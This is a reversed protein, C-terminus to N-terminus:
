YGFFWSKASYNEFLSHTGALDHDHIEISYIKILSELKKVRM